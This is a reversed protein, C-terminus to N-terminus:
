ELESSKITKLEIALANALGADYADPTSFGVNIAGNESLSANVNIGVADKSGYVNVSKILLGNMQINFNLNWGNFVAKSSEQTVTSVVERTITSSAM